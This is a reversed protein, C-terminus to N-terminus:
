VRRTVKTVRTQWVNSSITSEGTASQASYHGGDDAESGGPRRGPVRRRRLYACCVLLGPWLHRCLHPPLLPGGPPRCLCQGSCFLHPARPCGMSAGALAWMGYSDGRQSGCGLRTAGRSWTDGTDLGLLQTSLPLRPNGGTRISYQCGMVVPVPPGGRCQHKQGGCQHQCPCGLLATACSAPLSENHGPLVRIRSSCIHELSHVLDTAEASTPVFNSWCLTACCEVGTRVSPMLVCVKRRAKM